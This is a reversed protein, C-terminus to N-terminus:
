PAPAAGSQRRAPAAVACVVVSARPPAPRAIGWGGTARLLPSVAGAVLVIFPNLRGSGALGGAGVLLLQSPVPLGIQEALVVGFVVAYGYRILLDIAHSMAPRLAYGQQRPSAKAAKRPSLEHVRLGGPPVGIARSVILPFVRSRFTSGLVGRNHAIRSCAPKVPVLYPHPMACHPAQVTWRSPAAIREQTIGTDAASPLFIVVISPSALPEVSCLTCFAQSSLWTG